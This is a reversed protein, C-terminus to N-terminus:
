QYVDAYNVTQKVDDSHGAHALDAALTADVVFKQGLANEQLSQCTRRCHTPRPQLQVPPKM